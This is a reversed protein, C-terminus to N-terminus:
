LTDLQSHLIKCSVSRVWNSQKILVFAIGYLVPINLYKGIASSCFPFHLLNEFKWVHRIVQKQTNNIKVVTAINTIYSISDYDIKHLLKVFLVLLIYLAIKKLYIVFLHFYYILYDMLMSLTCGNLLWYFWLKVFHTCLLWRVKLSVHM